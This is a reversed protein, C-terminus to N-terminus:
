QRAEPQQDKVNQKLHSCCPLECGTFGPPYVEQTHTLLGHPYRDNVLLFWGNGLGGRGGATVIGSELPWGGGDPRSIVTCGLWPEADQDSIVPQGCGWADLCHAGSGASVSESVPGCKECYCAGAVPASNFVKLSPSEEGCFDCIGPGLTEPEVPETSPTEASM